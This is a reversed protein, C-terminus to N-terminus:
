AVQDRVQAVLAANLNEEGIWTANTDFPVGDLWWGRVYSSLDVGEHFLVMFAEEPSYATKCEGMNVLDYLAADRRMKDLNPEELHIKCEVVIKDTM